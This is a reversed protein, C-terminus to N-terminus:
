AEAETISQYNAPPADSESWYWWGDKSIKATHYGNELEVCFRRIDGDVTEGNPLITTTDVRQEPLWIDVVHASEAIQEIVPLPHAAPVMPLYNWESM